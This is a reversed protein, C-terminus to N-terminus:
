KKLDIYHVKLEDFIFKYVEEQNRLDAYIYEFHENLWIVTPLIPRDISILVAFIQAWLKTMDEVTEKDTAYFKTNMM